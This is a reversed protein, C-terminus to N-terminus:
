YQKRDTETDRSSQRQTELVRWRETKSKIWIDATKSQPENKSDRDRQRQRERM